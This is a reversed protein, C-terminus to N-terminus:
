VRESSSRAEDERRMDFSFSKIPTLKEHFATKLTQILSLLFFSFKPFINQPHQITLNISYNHLTLFILCIFGHHHLYWTNEYIFLFCIKREPLKKGLYIKRRRWFIYFGLSFFLMFLQYSLFFFIHFIQM